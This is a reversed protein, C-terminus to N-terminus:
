VLGNQLIGSGPESPEVIHLSRWLAGLLREEAWAIARQLAPM